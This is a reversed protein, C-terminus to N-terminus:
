IPLVCNWQWFLFYQNTVTSLFIDLEKLAEKIDTLSLMCKHSNLHSKCATSIFISKRQTHEQLMGRRLFFDYANVVYSKSMFVRLCIGWKMACGALHGASSPARTKMVEEWKEYEDKLTYYVSVSIPSFLTWSEHYAQKGRKIVIYRWNWGNSKWLFSASSSCLNVVIDWYLVLVWKKFTRRRSVLCLM